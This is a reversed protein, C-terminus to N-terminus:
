GGRDVDGIGPPPEGCARAAATAFIAGLVPQAESAFSLAVDAPLPLTAGLVPSPGFTFVQGPPWASLSKLVSISPYLQLVHMSVHQFFETRMLKMFEAVDSEEGEVVLGGPKGAIGMGTINLGRGTAFGTILEFRDIGSHASGYGKYLGVFSCWERM